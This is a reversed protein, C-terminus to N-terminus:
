IEDFIYYFLEDKMVIKHLFKKQRLRTLLSITIKRKDNRQDTISSLEHPIFYNM